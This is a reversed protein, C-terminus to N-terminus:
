GEAFLIDPSIVDRGNIKIREQGPIENEDFAEVNESVQSLAELKESMKEFAKNYGELKALYEDARATIAANEKKLAELGAADAKLQENENKLDFVEQQLGEIFDLVDAKKFGGFVVSDLIEKKAM